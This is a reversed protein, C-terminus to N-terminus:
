NLRFLNKFWNWLRVYWKLKPEETDEIEPTIVDTKDILATCNQVEAPKMYNSNCNNYKKCTRTQNGESCEGWESCGWDYDEDYKCRVYGGGGGSSVSYSEEVVEKYKIVTCSITLNDSKYNQSTSIILLTNNWSLDLGELSYTSNIVSCNVIEFDIPIEITEGAYYTASVIGMLFITIILIQFKM